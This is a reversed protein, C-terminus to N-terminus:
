HSTFRPQSMDHRVKPACDDPTMVWPDKLYDQTLDVACFPQNMLEIALTRIGEGILEHSVGLLNNKFPNHLVIHLDVLGQMYANVMWVIVLILVSFGLPIGADFSPEHKANSLMMGFETSCLLVHSKVLFTIMQVYAYPMANPLLDMLDNAAGRASKISDYVEQANVHSGLGM